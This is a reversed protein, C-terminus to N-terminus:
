EVQPVVAPPATTTTPHLPRGGLVVVAPPEVSAPRQGDIEGTRRRAGAVGKVGRHMDDMNCYSQVISSILPSGHIERPGQFAEKSLRRALEGHQQHGPRPRDRICM